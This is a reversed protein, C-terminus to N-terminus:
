LPASLFERIDGRCERYLHEGTSVVAMFKDVMAKKERGTDPGMAICAAFLVAALQFLIFQGSEPDEEAQAMQIMLAAESMSDIEGFETKLFQAAAGLLREENGLLGSSFGGDPICSSFSKIESKEVKTALLEGIEKPTM